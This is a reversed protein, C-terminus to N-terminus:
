RAIDQARRGRIVRRRKQAFDAEIAAGNPSTSADQFLLARAARGIGELDRMPMGAKELFEEGQMIALILRGLESANLGRDLQGNRQADRVVEIILEEVARYIGRALTLVEADIAALETTSNALFCGRYSSRRGRVPCPRDFLSRLREIAPRDASLAARTAELTSNAYLELAALFLGRKDGFAAYISGKGLGTARTLDDLSTATYGKSAFEDRVATLVAREDFQRPRAM